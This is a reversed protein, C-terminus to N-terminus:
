DMLCRTDLETRFREVHQVPHAESREAIRQLAGVETDVARLGVPRAPQLHRELQVPLPCRGLRESFRNQLGPMFERAAINAARRIAKAPEQWTKWSPARIM